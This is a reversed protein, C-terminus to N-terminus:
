DPELSSADVFQKPPKPQSMPSITLDTYKQARLRKLATDYLSTLNEAETPYVAHSAKLEGGPHRKSVSFLFDTKLRQIVSLCTQPKCNLLIIGLTRNRLAGVCDNRRIHARLFVGLDALVPDQAIPTRFLLLSVFFRYRFARAVEENLFHFFINSNLCPVDQQRPSLEGPPEKPDMVNLRLDVKNVLNVLCSQQWLRVPPSFLASKSPSVYSQVRM